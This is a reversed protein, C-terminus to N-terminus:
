RKGIFFFIITVIISIIACTVIPFYFTFNGKQIAIDGPLKGLPISKGFLFVAGVVALVLGAAILAKGLQEQLM